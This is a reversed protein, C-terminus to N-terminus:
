HKILPIAGKFTRTDLKNIIIRFVAWAHAQLPVLGSALPLSESMSIKAVCSVALLIPEPIPVSIAIPTYQRM